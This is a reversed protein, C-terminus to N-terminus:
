VGIDLLFYDPLSFDRQLRSITFNIVMALSSLIMGIESGIGTYKQLILLEAKPLIIWAVVAGRLYNINM